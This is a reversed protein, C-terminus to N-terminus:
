TSPFFARESVIELLFMCANNETYLKLSSLTIVLLDVHFSFCACEIGFFKSYKQWNKDSDIM